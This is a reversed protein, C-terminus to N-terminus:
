PTGHVLLSSVDAAEGAGKKLFRTRLYMTCTRHAGNQVLNSTYNNMNQFDGCTFDRRDILVVRPDNNVDDLSACFTTVLHATFVKWRAAPNSFLDM